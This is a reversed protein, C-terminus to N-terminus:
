VYCKQRETDYLLFDDENKGQVQFGTRRRLSSSDDWRVANGLDEWPAHDDVGV